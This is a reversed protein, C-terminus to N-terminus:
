LAGINHRFMAYEIIQEFSSNGFKATASMPAYIQRLMGDLLVFVIREEQDQEDGTHIEDANWNIM